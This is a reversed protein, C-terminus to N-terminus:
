PHSVLTIVRQATQAVPTTSTGSRVKLYPMARLDSSGVPIIRGAAAPITVESGDDSYLDGYNTGDFSGQFTLDAADWAAPMLIGALTHTPQIAVADSLSAGSAITATHKRSPATTPYTYPM